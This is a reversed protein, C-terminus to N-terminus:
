GAFKGHTPCVLALSRWEGKHGCSPCLGQEKWNPAASPGSPVGYYKYIKNLEDLSLAGNCYDDYYKKLEEWSTFRKRSLYRNINTLKQIEKM